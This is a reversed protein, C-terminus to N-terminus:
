SWEACCRRRRTRGSDKFGKPLSGFGEDRSPPLRETEREVRKRARVLADSFKSRPERSRLVVCRRLPARALAAAQSRCVFPDLTRYAPHQTVEMFCRVLITAKKTRGLTNSACLQECRTM